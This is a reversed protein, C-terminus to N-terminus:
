LFILNQRLLVKPVVDIFHERVTVLHLLYSPFKDCHAKTKKINSFVGHYGYTFSSASGQSLDQLVIDHRQIVWM